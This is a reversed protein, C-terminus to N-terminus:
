INNGSTLPFVFGPTTAEIERAKANYVRLL